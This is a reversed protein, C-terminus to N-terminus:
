LRASDLVLYEVRLVVLDPRLADGLGSLASGHGDRRVPRPAPGVDLEALAHALEAPEEHEARFAVLGAADVALQAPATGTLAIGSARLEEDRQLVVQHTEKGVRADNRAHKLFGEDLPLRELM